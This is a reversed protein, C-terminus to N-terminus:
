LLGSLLWNILIMESSIHPAHMANATSTMFHLVCDLSLFGHLHIYEGPYCKQKCILKMEIETKHVRAKKM